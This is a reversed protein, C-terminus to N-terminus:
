TGRRPATAATASNQDNKQYNGVFVIRGSLRSQSPDPRVNMERVRIMENASAIGVLFNILEKGDSTYQIALTQEEFFQNTRTSLSRARPDSHIIQLGSAAAQSQVLKQLELQGKLMDSGTQRLTELKKEYQEKKAIENRYRELRSHSQEMKGAVQSWDDFYPWIFWVNLVAFIVLGVVVVLRREQPRLNMKDFYSKM